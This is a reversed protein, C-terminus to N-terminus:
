FTYAVGLLNPGQTVFYSVLFSTMTVNHTFNGLCNSLNNNLTSLFTNFSTQSKFMSLKNCIFGIEHKFFKKLNKKNRFSTLKNEYYNLFYQLSLIPCHVEELFFTFGLVLIAQHQEYLNILQM